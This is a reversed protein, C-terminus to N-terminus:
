RQRAGGANGRARDVLELDGRSDGAARHRQLRARRRFRRGAAPSSLMRAPIRYPCRHARGAHGSPRRYQRAIGPCAGGSRRLARRLRFPTRRHSSRRSPDPIPPARTRRAVLRGLIPKRRPSATSSPTSSTRGAGARTTSRPISRSRRSATVACTTPLSAIAIPSAPERIASPVVSAVPRARSRFLIPWGEPSGWERVSIDVGDPTKVWRQRHPRGAARARHSEQQLNPM